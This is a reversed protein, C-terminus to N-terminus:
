NRNFLHAARRKTGVILVIGGDICIASIVLWLAVNRSGTFPLTAAAAVTTPTSAVAVVNTTTTVTGTAGVVIFSNTPVAPACTITDTITTTGLLVQATIVAAKETFTVDATSSTPTWVTSALTTTLSLPDASDDADGPIGDPDHIVVKPSAHILPYARTGEVTNSGSITLLLTSPIVSGNHLVGAAYGKLLLDPPVSITVTTGSLTIPKGFHPAPSAKTAITITVAATGDPVVADFQVPTV